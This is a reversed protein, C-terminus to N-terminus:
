KPYIENEKQKNNKEEKTNSYKIDSYLLYMDISGTKEFVKWVMSDLM